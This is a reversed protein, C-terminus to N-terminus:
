ADPLDWRHEERFFFHSFRQRGTDYRLFCVLCMTGCFSHSTAMLLAQFYTLTTNVIFTSKRFEVNVHVQTGQYGENIGFVKVDNLVAVRTISRIAPNMGQADGGSTMVAIGNTQVTAQSAM